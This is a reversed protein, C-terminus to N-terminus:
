EAWVLIRDGGAFTEDLILGAGQRAIDRPRIGLRKMDFGSDKLALQAAPGKLRFFWFPIDSRVLRNERSRYAMVVLKSPKILPDEQGISTNTFRGSGDRTLRPPGSDLSDVVAQFQLHTADKDMKEMSTVRAALLGFVGVGVLAAGLVILLIRSPRLSM